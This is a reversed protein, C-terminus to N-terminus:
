GPFGVDSLAVDCLRDLEEDSVLLGVVVERSLGTALMVNTIMIEHRADDDAPLPANVDDVIM